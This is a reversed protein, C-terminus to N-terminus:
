GHVAGQASFLLGYRKLYQGFALILFIIGVSLFLSHSPSLKKKVWKQNDESISFIGVLNAVAAIISLYLLLQYLSLLFPYNFLYFSTSMGLIPEITETPSQFIFKLFVDWRSHWWGGGIFAALLIALYRIYKDQNKLNYTFLYIVFGSFLFSIVFLGKKTLWVKWFRTNYGLNEFWLMEGWFSMFAFFLLSLIALTAGFFIVKKKKKIIGKDLIFGSTLMLLALIITYMFKSNLNIM